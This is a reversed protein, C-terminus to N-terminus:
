IGKNLNKNIELKSSIQDHDLFFNSLIKNLCPNFLFSMFKLTLFTSSRWIYNIYTFIHFSQNKLIPKYKYVHFFFIYITVSITEKWKHM